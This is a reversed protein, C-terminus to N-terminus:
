GLLCLLVHHSHLGRVQYGWWQTWPGFGFDQVCLDQEFGGVMGVHFLNHFRLCAFWGWGNNKKKKKRFLSERFNLWFFPTRTKKIHLFRTLTLTISKSTPLYRCRNNLFPLIWLWFFSFTLNWLWLKTPKLIRFAFSGMQQTKVHQRTNVKEANALTEHIVILWSEQTM